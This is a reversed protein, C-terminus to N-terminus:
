KEEATGPLNITYLFRPVPNRIGGRGLASNPRSANSHYLQSTEGLSPPPSLLPHSLDGCKWCRPRRSDRCDQLLRINRLSRLIRDPTHPSDLALLVPYNSFNPHLQSGFQSLFQSFEFSILFHFYFSCMPVSLLM